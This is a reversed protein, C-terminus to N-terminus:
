WPIDDKSKAAVSGLTAGNQPKFRLKRYHKGAKSVNDYMNVWYMSGDIM